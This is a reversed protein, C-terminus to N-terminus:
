LGPRSGVQPRGGVVPLSRGTRQHEETVDKRLWEKRHRQRPRPLRQPRRQSELIDKATLGATRPCLPRGPLLLRRHARADCEAAEVEAQAISVGLAAQQRACRCTARWCPRWATSTKWLMPRSSPRPSAPAPPPSPRSISSPTSAAPTRPRFRPAAAPRFSRARCAARDTRRRPRRSSPSAIGPRGPRESHPRAAAVGFALARM